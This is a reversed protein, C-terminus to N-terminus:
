PSYTCAWFGQFGIVYPGAQIRFGRLENLNCSTCRATLECFNRTVPWNGTLAHPRHNTQIAPSVRSATPANLQIACTELILLPKGCDTVLLCPCPKPM